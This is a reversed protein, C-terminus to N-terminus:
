VSAGAAGGRMRSQIAQVRRRADTLAVDVRAPRSRMAEAQAVFANFERVARGGTRAMDVASGARDFEGHSCIGGYYGVLAVIVPREADPITAEMDQVTGLSERGDGTRGVACQVQGLRLYADHGPSELAVAEELAELAGAWEGLNIHSIGRRVLGQQYERAYGSTRGQPATMRQYAATARAWDQNAFARNGALLSRRDVDADPDTPAASPQGTPRDASESPPRSPADGLDPRRSPAQAIRDLRRSMRVTYPGASSGRAVALVTDLRHYSAAELRVELVLSDHAVEHEIRYPEASRVREVATADLLVPARVLYRVTLEPDALAAGTGADVAQFVVESAEAPGEPAEALPPPGSSCSSLLAVLPPISLTGRRM